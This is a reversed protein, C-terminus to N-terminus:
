HTPGMLARNTDQIFRYIENRESNTLDIKKEHEAVTMADLYKYVETKTTMHFLVQKMMDVKM